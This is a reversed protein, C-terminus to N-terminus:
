LDLAKRVVQPSGQFAPVRAARLARAVCSGAASGALGGTVLATTVRGSPAFTVETITPEDPPEQVCARVRARTADIAARLESASPPTPRISPRPTPAPRTDAQRDTSPRDAGRSGASRSAPSRSAPSRSGASRSGASRSGASRRDPDGHVSRPAQGARSPRRTPRPERTSSRRARMETHDSSADPHHAVGEATDADDSAVATSPTQTPRTSTPATSTPVSDPPAAAMAPPPVVAEAAEDDGFLADHLSAAASEMSGEEMPAPTMPEDASVTSADAPSPTAAETALRAPPDSTVRTLIIALVAALTAFSFSAIRWWRMERRSPDVPRFTAMAEATPTEDARKKRKGKGFPPESARSGSPASRRAVVIEEEPGRHRSPDLSAAPELTRLLSQFAAEISPLADMHQERATGEDTQVITEIMSTSSPWGRTKRITILRPPAGLGELQAIGRALASAMAPTARVGCCQAVVDGIRVNQM